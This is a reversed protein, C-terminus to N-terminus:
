RDVLWRKAEASKGGGDARVVKMMIKEMESFVEFTRTGRGFRVPLMSVEMSSLTGNGM